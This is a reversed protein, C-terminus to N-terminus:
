PKRYVANTTTCFYLAGSPLGAVVAQTPMNQAVFNNAHFACSAVATINCGFIGAYHLGHDNNNYGGLISSYAGTRMDMDRVRDVGGGTISRIGQTINLM